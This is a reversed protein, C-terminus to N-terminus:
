GDEIRSCFPEDFQLRELQLCGNLPHVRQFPSVRQIPLLFALLRFVAITLFYIEHTRRGFYLLVEDFRNVQFSYFLCQEFWFLPSCYILLKVLCDHFFVSPQLFRM